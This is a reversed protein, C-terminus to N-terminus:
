HVTVKLHLGFQVQPSFFAFEAKALQLQLAFQWHPGLQSHVRSMLHLGAHVQPSQSVNIM